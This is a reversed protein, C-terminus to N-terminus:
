NGLKELIKLIDLDGEAPPKWNVHVVQINQKKLDDAFMEVGINIIKLETKFLNVKESM